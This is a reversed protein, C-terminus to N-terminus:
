NSLLPLVIGFSTSDIEQDSFTELLIVLPRHILHCCKSYNTKPFVPKNMVFDEENPEFFYINTDNQKQTSM